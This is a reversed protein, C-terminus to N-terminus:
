TSEASYLILYIEKLVEESYKDIVEDNIPLGVRGMFFSYRVFISERLPSKIIAIRNSINLESKCLRSTMAYDIIWYGDNEPIKGLWHYRFFQNNIIYKMQQLQDKIFKKETINKIKNIADSNNDIKNRNRFLYLFVIDFPLVSCFHFFDYTPHKVDCIPTILVGLLEKKEAEFYISHFINSQDLSISSDNPVIINNFM